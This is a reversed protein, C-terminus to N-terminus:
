SRAGDSRLRCSRGAPRLSIRLPCLSTVHGAPEEAAPPGLPARCPSKGGESGSHGKHATDRAHAKSCCLLQRTPRTRLSNIDPWPKCAGRVGPTSICPSPAPYPTTSLQCTAATLWARLGRHEANHGPGPARRQQPAQWAVMSVMSWVPPAKPSGARQRTRLITSDKM